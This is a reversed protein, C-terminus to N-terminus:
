LGVTNTKSLVLSLSVKLWNVIHIFIDLKLLFSARVLSDGNLTITDAVKKSITDYIYIEDHHMIMDFTADESNNSTIIFKNDHYGIIDYDKSPPLGNVNIVSGVSIGTNNSSTCAVLLMVTLLTM